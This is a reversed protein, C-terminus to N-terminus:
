FNQSEKLKDIILGFFNSKESRFAWGLMMWCQTCLAAQWAYGPFWTFDFSEKGTVLCGPAQSFCGIHFIFGHPNAFVHEHSENMEIKANKYTIPYGCNICCLYDEYNSDEDQIKSKTVHSTEKSTKKERKLLEFVENHFFSGQCSGSLPFSLSYNDCDGIDLQKILEM